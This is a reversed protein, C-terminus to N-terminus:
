SAAREKEAPRRDRLSEILWKAGSDLHEAMARRAGDADGARIAAAIPEHRRIPEARDPRRPFVEVFWVRMVHRLTEMVHRLVESHAAAAIALHFGVDHRAFADADDLSARMLALHEEIARIEEPTAREAALGALEMEVVRRAEMVDRTSREGMLLGWSLPRTLMSAEGDAVFMGSGVRVDVIGLASLTKVAERLSSRGVSLRGMLERESPLKDGPKLGEELILSVLRQVIDDTLYGRRSPGLNLPDTL